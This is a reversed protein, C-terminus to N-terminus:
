PWLACPEFDCFCSDVESCHNNAGRCWDCGGHWAPIAVPKPQYLNSDERPNGCPVGGPRPQRSLDCCAPHRPILCIRFYQRNSLCSRSASSFKPSNRVSAPQRPAAGNVIGRLPRGCGCVGLIPKGDEALLLRKSGGTRCCGNRTGTLEWNLNGGFAGAQRPPRAMRKAMRKAMRICGAPAPQMPRAGRRRPPYYERAEIGTGPAVPHCM